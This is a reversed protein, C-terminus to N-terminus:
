LTVKMKKKTAIDPTNKKSISENKTVQPYKQLLMIRMLIMLLHDKKSPVADLDSKAQILLSYWLQLNDLTLSSNM